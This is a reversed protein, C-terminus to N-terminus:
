FVDMTTLHECKLSDLNYLYRHAFALSHCFWGTCFFFNVTFWTVLPSFLLSPTLSLMSNKYLPSLETELVWRCIDIVGAGPSEM